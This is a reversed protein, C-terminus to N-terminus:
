GTLSQLRQRMAKPSHYKQWVEDYRKMLESKQHTEIEVLASKLEERNTACLPLNEENFYRPISAYPPGYVLIPRGCAYYELIKCSFSTTVMLREEDKFSYPLFCAYASALHQHMEADSLKYYAVVWDQNPLSGLFGEANSYSIIKLVLKYRRGEVKNFECIEDYLDRLADLYLHNLGGIFVLNRKEGGIPSFAEPSPPGVISPLPLWQAQCGFRKNLHEVFGLSIAHVGASRKIVSDLLPRVWNRLLRNHGYEASAEIDDVLYIEVPIGAMQVIRINFLFWADAGCLIFIREINRRLILHRLKPLWILFLFVDLIAAVNSFYRRIGWPSVDPHLILSVQDCAENILSKSFSRRYRRTLVARLDQALIAIFYKSIGHNGHGNDPLPPTDTYFLIKM